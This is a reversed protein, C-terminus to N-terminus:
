FEYEGNEEEEKVSFGNNTDGDPTWDRDSAISGAMIQLPEMEIVSVEPAVYKKKKM